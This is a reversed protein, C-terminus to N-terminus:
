NSWKKSINVSLSMNYSEVHQSHVHVGAIPDVFNYKRCVTFYDYDVSNSLCRYSKIEDSHIINGAKVISNILPFLVSSSRFGVFIAYGLAPKFAQRRHLCVM